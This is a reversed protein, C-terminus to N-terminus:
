IVQRGQNKGEGHKHAAIFGPPGTELGVLAGQHQTCPLFVAELLADQSSKVIPEM